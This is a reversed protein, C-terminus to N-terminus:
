TMSSNWLGMDELGKKAMTHLPNERNAREIESEVQGTNFDFTARIASIDKWEGKGFMHPNAQYTGTGVRKIIGSKILNSITHELTNIKIGLNKSIQEKIFINLIILQGGRKASSEAFTMYKLLEMLVPTTTKPLNKFTLLTNLYLKVYSPESSIIVHNTKEEHTLEGTEHNLTRTKESYTIKDKTRPM